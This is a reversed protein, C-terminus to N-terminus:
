VQKMVKYKPFNVHLSITRQSDCLERSTPQAGGTVGQQEGASPGARGHQAKFGAKKRRQASLSMDMSDTIGDLWGDETM